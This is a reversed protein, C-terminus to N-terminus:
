SPEFPVSLTAQVGEPPQNEIRFAFRQGYLGQLRSRVNAIGIGEKTAEWGPPLGPGDNYVCVNLTGNLRTASLRIEGGAARKAIGHKISNELMPQLILSPVRASLLDSPVEVSLKLRDGFRMKEINLYQNLFELEAALSVQQSSDNLLHRLFDSLAALMSVADDNRNERILGAIGNLTNFLFHPEIQRRLANLQERSLQENLRATEMQQAALRARSDLMQGIVLITAYLIFTSLLGGYFKAALLHSFTTPPELFPNLAVQFFANWAASVLCIAGCALVHVVWTNWPRLAVPPHKRGLFLAVPAAAAWPLWFLLTTFFLAVWAHHMGEAHMVAVTQTADFLAIAGIVAVTARWHLSHSQTTGDM